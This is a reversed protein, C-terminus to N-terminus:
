SVDGGGDGSNKSDGSDGADGHDSKTKVEELKSGDVESDSSGQSNTFTSDLLHGWTVAPVTFNSGCKM